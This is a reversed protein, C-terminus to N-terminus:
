VQKDTKLQKELMDKYYKQDIHSHSIIVDELIGVLIMLLMQSNDTM